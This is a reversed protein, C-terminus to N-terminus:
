KTAKTVTFLAKHINIWNIYDDFLDDRLFFNKYNSKLRDEEKYNHEKDKYTISQNLHDIILESKDYFIVITKIEESNKTWDVKLDLTIENNFATIYCRKIDPGYKSIDYSSKYLEINELKAFSGEILSFINPFADIVAGNLPGFKDAVTDFENVKNEFVKVEIKLIDKEKINFEKLALVENGYLWNYIPILKANFEKRLLQLKKIDSMNFAVVKEVFVNVKNLFAKKIIRFHTSPPTAVILYDVKTSNFM